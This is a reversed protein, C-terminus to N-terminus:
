YSNPVVPLILRSAATRNRQLQIFTLGFVPWTMLLDATSIELKIRSGRSFRHYCAQMEVPQDATDCMSWVEPNYGEYYGRSVLTETGDPAVEYIWPILQTFPQSSKYFLELQPAGMITLDRTLPPSLYCRETFPIGLLKIRSPVQMTEGGVMNPVDQYYPLSISGTIGTNVLLEFDASGRPRSRTLVLNSGSANLYYSVAQTGPLPYSDARGYNDPDQGRYFILRPERDAGNDVGKLFRDFWAKIQGNIWRSEPSEPLDIFFNGGMGGIHGHNTIIMRAPAAMATSFIRLGENAYFIDDNWGALILTPAVLPHEVVGDYEGDCWYRASRERLYQRGKEVDEVRREMAAGTIWLLMDTVNNVPPMAKWFADIAAQLKQLANLDSRQVIALVHMLLGSLNGIYAGAALFVGWLAKAAGNPLISFQLDAGGHMPVVARIRPDGPDGPRPDKRPAALFSTCGGMSYGTIGVVPGKEDRLVPFREDESALTIITRVDRIEKEPDMCGIQGEAGYWGRMTFTVSVYGDGAYERAMKEFILKDCDWPHVFVILPYDVAAEGPGGAALPYFVSVPLKVGDEMTWHEDVRAVELSSGPASSAAVDGGGTDAESTRTGAGAVPALSLVMLLSAMALALLMTVRIRFSRTM